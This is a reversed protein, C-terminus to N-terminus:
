QRRRRWLLGALGAGLLALTSPEPILTLRVTGNLTNVEFQGLDLEVFVDFFSNVTNVSRTDSSISDWTGTAVAKWAHSGPSLHQSYRYIGGGMDVMATAPNANNWGQWDGVATWTVANGSASVGIRQSTGLWGDSYTNADYTITVSGSGDAVLWSNPGPYNWDWTGQTIKFEYRGATIPSVTAQWIGSGSSTETMLTGAANWGNFGGAVYYDALVPQALTVTIVLAILLKKM